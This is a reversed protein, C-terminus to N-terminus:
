ARHVVQLRLRHHLLEPVARKGRPDVPLLDLLAGRGKLHLQLLVDLEHDLRHPPDRPLQPHIGVLCCPGEPGPSLPRAAGSRLSSMPLGESFNGTDIPTSPGGRLHEFRYSRSRGRAKSTLGTRGPVKSRRGTSTSRHSTFRWWRSPRVARGKEGGRSGRSGIAIRRRAIAPNVDAVRRASLWKTLRWSCASCLASGRFRSVQRLIMARSSFETAGLAM